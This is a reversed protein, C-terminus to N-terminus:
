NVEELYCEKFVVYGSNTILKVDIIEFTRGNDTFRDVNDATKKEVDADYEAIMKQGRIQSYGADTMITVLQKKSYIRVTQAYLETTAETWGGDDAQTRTTRSITIETPNQAIVDCQKDRIYEYLEAM